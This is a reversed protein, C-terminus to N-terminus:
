VVAGPNPRRPSLERCGDPRWTTCSPSAHLDQRNMAAKMAEVAAAVTRHVTTTVPRDLDILEIRGSGLIAFYWRDGADEVSSARGLCALESWTDNRSFSVGWDLDMSMAAAIILNRDRQSFRPRQATAVCFALVNTSAHM